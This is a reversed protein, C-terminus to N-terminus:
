AQRRDVDMGQAHGQDWRAVADTRGSHRHDSVREQRARGKTPRSCSSAGVSIATIRIALSSISLGCGKDLSVHCSLNTFLFRDYYAAKAFVTAAVRGDAWWTSFFNPDRTAQAAQDSRGTPQLLALNLQSSEIVLSVQPTDLWNSVSGRARLDSGNMTLALEQITIDRRDLLATLTVDRIASSGEPAILGKELRIRGSSEWSSRKAGQGRIVLTADLHGSKVTGVSVGRPLKALSVPKAAVRAEFDWEDTFHLHGEGALHIPSVLLDLRRVVLMQDASVLGEFEISAPAGKPKTV